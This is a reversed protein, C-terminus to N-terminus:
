KDRGGSARRRRAARSSTRYPALVARLDRRVWAGPDGTRHIVWNSLSGFLAAHLASALPGPPCREIEGARIADHVLSSIGARMGASAALAHRHFEPDALHIQLFALSNTIGVPTSGLLESMCDALSLLARVPSRHRLRLDPFIYDSGTAVDAAALLLLARKSGFRHVLAAASIGAEDAVDALTLRTPGRRALARFTARLIDDDTAKRLRPSV